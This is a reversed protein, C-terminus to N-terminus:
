KAYPIWPNEQIHDELLGVGYLFEDLDGNAIGHIEYLMDEMFTHYANSHRGKHNSLIRINWEGDLDLGYEDVVEQYKPTYTKNKNSFFHHNQTGEKEGLAMTLGKSAAKMTGVFTNWIGGGGSPGSPEDAVGDGDKDMDTLDIKASAHGCLDVYLVPSNCCYSFM